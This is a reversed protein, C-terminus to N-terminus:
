PKNEQPLLISSTIEINASRLFTCDHLQSSTTSQSTSWQEALNAIQKSNDVRLLVDLAFTKGRSSQPLRKLKDTTDVLFSKFDLEQFAWRTTERALLM